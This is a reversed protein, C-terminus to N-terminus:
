RREGSRVAFWTVVTAGVEELTKGIHWAVSKKNAVGFVVITKGSLQLFDM